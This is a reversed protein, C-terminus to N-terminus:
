MMKMRFSQERNFKVWRGVYSFARDICIIWVAIQVLSFSWKAWSSFDRTSQGVHALLTETTCSM